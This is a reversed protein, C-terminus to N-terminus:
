RMWEWRWRWDKFEARMPVGQGGECVWVSSGEITIRADTQNGWHSPRSTRSFPAPMAQGDIRLEAKAQRPDIMLEATHWNTDPKLFGADQWHGADNDAQWTQVTGPNAFPNLVWSFGVILDRRSNTGDWLQISGELNQSYTEPQNKVPIQPARFKFSFSHRFGLAMANTASLYTINHAQIKRGNPNAELRSFDELHVTRVDSAQVPTEDPAQCSGDGLTTQWTRFNSAELQWNQGSAFGAARWAPPVPLCATLTVLLTALMFRRAYIM